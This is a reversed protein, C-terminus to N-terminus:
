VFPTFLQVSIEFSFSYSIDINEMVMVNSVSFINLNSLLNSYLKFCQLGFLNLLQVINMFNFLISKFSIQDSFLMFKSVLFLFHCSKQDLVLSKLSLHAFRRFNIAASLFLSFTSSSKFSLNKQSFVYKIKNVALSRNRM